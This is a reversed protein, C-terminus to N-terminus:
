FGTQDRLVLVSLDYGVTREGLIGATVARLDFLDYEAGNSLEIGSDFCCYTGFEPVYGLPNETEPM